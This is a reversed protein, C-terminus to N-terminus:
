GSGEHGRLSVGRSGEVQGMHGASLSGSIVAACGTYDRTWWTSVKLQCCRDVVNHTPIIRSFEGALWVLAATKYLQQSPPTPM